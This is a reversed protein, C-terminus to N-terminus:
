IVSFSVNKMRLFRQIQRSDIVISDSKVQLWAGIKRGHRVDPVEFLAADVINPHETLTKQILEFGIM